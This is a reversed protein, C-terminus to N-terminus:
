RSIQFTAAAMSTSKATSAQYMDALAATEPTVDSDMDALFAFSLPQYVLEAMVTYRSSKMGSLRFSLTDGGGDFDADTGAAGAVKIDASAAGKDFGSPLLRNDKLMDAASLLTCTVEGLSNGMIAEYAQVQDPSTILRYHSEFTAPNIDSDLGTVSGDANIRGSEFVVRGRADSVKVHLIMRRLPIGTPLKHGTLNKVRLDFALVNDALSSSLPAVAAASRLMQETEQITVPINAGTAALEAGNNLLLDLLLTNGGVLKHTAFDDRLTNLWMPRTAMIVGNTRPMHCDQCSQQAPYDSALWESYTMQEPFERDPTSIVNGAEDVYPTRLNHCTGCVASKKIHPSYAITYSVMNLMPMAFVNDYPGYIRRDQPNPYTDITYHGSFSPETGLESDAIQHCLTCSVGDMAADYYADTPTLMGGLLDIEQNHYVAETNAMPAHCRSCEDNIVAALDPNRALESSVKARWLPDRSAHAMVTSSWDTEISVDAGNEDTLGNHCMSCNGSGSFHLTTFQTDYSASVMGGGGGGPGPGFGGGMGMGGPGGMGGSGNGASVFLLTCGFALALYNKRRRM